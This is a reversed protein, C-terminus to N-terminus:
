SEKLNSLSSAQLVRWAFVNWLEPACISPNTGGQSGGPSIGGPSASTTCPSLSPWLPM